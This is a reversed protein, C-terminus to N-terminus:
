VAYKGKLNYPIKYDGKNAWSDYSISVEAVIPVRYDFDEMMSKVKPILDMEDKHFYFQIEDHVFNTMRSKANIERLYNGIRIVSTKFLDAQEGQILFNVAQRECRSQEAFPMTKFGPFQRVRGFANVVKGDTRIQDKVQKIWKSVGRYTNLYGDIYNRCDQESKTIPIQQQLGKPGVGYIIGFNVRKAVLRALSFNCDKCSCAGQEKHGTRDGKWKVLEEVPMEMVINAATLLHVDNGKGEFPYCSLLIPDKSISALLRLEASALDMYVLSYDNNPVIFAKKISKDKNTINQLNPNSSSMRGSTVSANYSTHLYDREDLNNLIGEVYTTKKKSAERYDLIQRAYANTKALEELVEKDVSFTQEEESIGKEAADKSKKSLKKLIVGKKQLADALQIPSGINFEFGFSKYIEQENDKLDQELKPNLNQLYEKDIKVGDREAYFLEYNLQVERMYTKRLNANNTVPMVFAKFLLYTYHVDSCAYPTMLEVPVYDYTVDDVKNKNFIHNECEEKAIRKANEKIESLREESIFLSENVLLRAAEVEKEKLLSQFGKRRRRAEESRWTKIEKEWKDAKRHIFKCALEKLGHNENEDFVKSMNLTDHLVGSVEIGLNLLIHLDFKTNHGIFTKNKSSFLSKLDDIINEIRLQKEDTKHDIPIYYNNAVGWGISIGCANNRVWDLGNTETDFCIYKQNRAAEMFEHFDTMTNVLYYVGGNVGTFTKM